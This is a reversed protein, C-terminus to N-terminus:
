SVREFVHWVFAGNLSLVTDVHKVYGTEPMPNGTGVVHFTRPEKEASPDVVAWIQLEGNSHQDAVKVIKAGEPMQVQVEDDLPLVYKHITSAM